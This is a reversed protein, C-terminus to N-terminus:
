QKRSRRRLKLKPAEETTDPKPAEDVPEAPTVDKVRKAKAPAAAPTNGGVVAAQKLQIECRALGSLDPVTYTDGEKLDKWPMDVLAKLTIM